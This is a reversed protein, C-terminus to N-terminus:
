LVSCMSRKVKVTEDSSRHPCFLRTPGKCCCWFYACGRCCAFAPACASDNRLHLSLSTIDITRDVVGVWKWHKCYDQWSMWFAGDDVDEHKCKSKVRPHKEWLESKDSWEGTWEGCGWPNRIKLLRFTEGGIGMPGTNVKKVDLISYAHGKHLGDTGDSGSACLISRLKNYKLVVEFMTDDDIDEGKDMLLVARRNEPDAKNILDKRKWGKGDDSRMYMRAPDGTMARIAWITQGGETAAYSGCFKAFAKELLIAWLENGNPQSFMPKCVTEEEWRKKNCPIYDDITIYEWKEHVGDYLRLFYKGRPSREKSRFVSNIAGPHEALAAMAALLWCNGLAGQCIDSSNIDDGFLQMKGPFTFKGARLWIVNDKNTKGAEESNASDGKLFGLSKDNPPFKKDTFEWCKFMRCICCCFKYFGRFFYVRLCGCLYISFAWCCLTFPAFICNYVVCARGYM